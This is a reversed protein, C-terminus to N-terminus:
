RLRQHLNQLYGQFIDRIDQGLNKLYGKFVTKPKKPIRSDPIKRLINKLIYNLTKKKSFIMFSIRIHINKFINQLHSSTSVEM